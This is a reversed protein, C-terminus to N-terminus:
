RTSDVRSPAVVTSSSCRSIVWSLPSRVWPTTWITARSPSSCCTDTTSQDGDAARTRLVRSSVPEVTPWRGVRHRAHGRVLHWAAGGGGPPCRHMGTKIHGPCVINVRVQPALELAFSQMAVILGAKSTSYSSLHGQGARGWQSSVAVVLAGETQRLAAAFARTLLFPGTLNIDPVRSWKAPDLEDVATATRVTGAILLLAKVGGFEDMIADPDARRRDGLHHGRHLRASKARPAAFTEADTVADTLSDGINLM